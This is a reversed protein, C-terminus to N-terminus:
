GDALQRSKHRRRHWSKHLSKPRGNHRSNHRSIHGSKRRRNHRGCCVSWRSLSRSKQSHTDGDILCVQQQGVLPQTTLGTPIRHIRLKCFSPLRLTECCQEVKPPWVLHMTQRVTKMEKKSEKGPLINHRVLQPGPQRSSTQHGAGSYWDWNHNLWLCRPWQFSIWAARRRAWSDENVNKQCSVLGNLWKGPKM